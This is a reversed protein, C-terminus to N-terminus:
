SSMGKNFKRRKTEEPSAAHHPPFFLPKAAFSKLKFGAELLSGLQMSKAPGSRCVLAKTQSTSIGLSCKIGELVLDGPSPANLPHPSNPPPFPSRSTRTSTLLFLFSPLYPPRLTYDGGGSKGNHHLFCGRRHSCLGRETKFSGRDQFCRLTM